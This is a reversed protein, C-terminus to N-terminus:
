RECCPKNHQIIASPTVYKEKGCLVCTLHAKTGANKYDSVKYNLALLREEYNGRQKNKADTIQKNCNPCGYNDPHRKILWLKSIPTANHISECKLCKLDHHIKSGLYEGVIELGIDKLQDPYTEDKKSITIQDYHRLLIGSNDFDTEWITILNFGLERLKKHKAATNSHLELATIDKNFPHCKANAKYRNPNGHFADGDFEYVTNTEVCYGDASLQTGPIRFEGGNGAHQITINETEQIHDLWSLGKRSFSVSACSPCGHGHLHDGIRQNFEGHIPCLIKLKQGKNRALQEETVLSYDYKNNHIPRFKELCNELTNKSKNVACQNCGQGNLHNRPTQDFIGHIPCLISIKNQGNIYDINSYNYKGNHVVSAKTIFDQKYKNVDTFCKKCGHGRLHMYPVQDFDGHTACRIPIKVYVGKWFRESTSYDYQQNHKMNASVVFSEFSIFKSDLKCLNCGIGRLHVKPQQLFEGHTLCIIQIKNSNNLYLVKSYDYKNGHINNAKEIFKETKDM